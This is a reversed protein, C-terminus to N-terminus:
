GPSEFSGNSAKSAGKPLEPGGGSGIQEDFVPFPGLRLILGTSSLTLLSCAILGAAYSRTSDFTVGMLYPFIATGILYTSFAFGYITGFARLGFYRSLLYALIDGEAGACLGILITCVSGLGGAAGAALGSIALTALVFFCAAVRPAFFWDILFGTGLRGVMMSGGFLSAALVAGSATAGRDQLLPILHVAISNVGGALLCFAALIQWLQLRSLAESATLGPFASGLGVPRSVPFPNRAANPVSVSVSDYVLFYVVPIGIVWVILGIAAYAMQWGGVEILASALPPIIILGLGMGSSAIGIVLGRHADFWTCLARIYGLSNAGAGAVGIFAFCVYFELLSDVFRFCNLGLGLFFLSPLIVRRVGFRDILLGVLPISVVIALNLITAVLSIQARDWGFEDNIAGIFNSLSYFALTGPSMAVGLTAAAVIWWRGPIAHM